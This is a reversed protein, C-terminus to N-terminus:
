KRKWWVTSTRAFIHWVPRGNHTPVTGLYSFGQLYDDELSQGTGLVRFEIPREAKTPDVMFYMMPLNDQEIVLLFESELPLKVIQSAKVELPYKYIKKM